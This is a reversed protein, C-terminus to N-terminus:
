VLREGEIEDKRRQGGTQREGCFFGGAFINEGALRREMQLAM